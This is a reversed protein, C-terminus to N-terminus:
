WSIRVTIKSPSTGNYDYILHKNDVSRGFKPYYQSDIVKLEGKGEFNIKVINGSINLNISGGQVGGASVSPHFPPVLRIKHVGKGIIVGTIVIYFGKKLNKISMMALQFNLVM